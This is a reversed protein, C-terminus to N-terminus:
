QAKHLDEPEGCARADIGYETLFARVTDSPATILTRGEVTQAALQRTAHQKLWDSDLLSFRLTTGDLWVRMPIHTPTRFPDDDSAVVDMLRVDGAEFLRAELKVASSSKGVYRIVYHNELQNVILTDEGDKDHWVGLLAPDLMAEKDTVIPNISVLKACGTLSLVGALGLALDLVLACYRM